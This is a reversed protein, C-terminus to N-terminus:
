VELTTPWGTGITAEVSKVGDLDAASMINIQLDKRKTFCAEVHDSVASALTEVATKDLAAWTGDAYVFDIVKSNDLQVTNYMGSIYQQSEFSTKVPKGDVSIGAYEVQSAKDKLRKILLDKYAVLGNATLSFGNTEDYAYWGGVFPQPVPIDYYTANDTRTTPDTFDKGTACDSGLVVNHDYVVVGNKVIM